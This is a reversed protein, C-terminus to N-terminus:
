ICNVCKCHQGLAATAWLCRHIESIEMEKAIVYSDSHRQKTKGRRNERDLASKM